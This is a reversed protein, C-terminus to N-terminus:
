RRRAALSPPCRMCVAATRLRRPTCSSTDPRPDRLDALYAIVMTLLNRHTLMAGKPAGTTGSTYFLWAVDDPAVSHLALPGSAQDIADEYLADASPDPQLCIRLPPTGNVAMAQDAYEPGYVVAAVQADDLVQAAEHPTARANIPVVCFGGHIAALLTELLRPGNWQIIGVRDGSVLGRDRLCGALRRRPRVAARLEADAGHRVAAHDPHM